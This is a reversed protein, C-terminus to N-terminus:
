AGAESSPAEAGDKEVIEVQVAAPSGKDAGSAPDVGQVEVTAEGPRAGRAKCSDVQTGSEFRGSEYLVEGDQKVTFRQDMDNEASNIVHLSLSGDDELVVVPSVAVTMMSERVQEDLAQQIEERSMGPMASVSAGAERGGSSIGWALLAAVIALIAAAAAFAKPSPLKRENDAM